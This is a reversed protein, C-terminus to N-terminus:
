MNRLRWIGDADRVFEVMFSMMKGNEQRLMAYEARDDRIEVKHIETMVKDIDTKGDKLAQFVPRYKAREGIAVGGLAAEVDGKRLADKVKKWASKVVVDIEQPTAAQERVFPPTDFRIGSAKAFREAAVRLSSRTYREGPEPGRVFMSRGVRRGLELEYDEAAATALIIATLYRGPDQHALHALIEDPELRSLFSMTQFLIGRSPPLSLLRKALIDHPPEPMRGDLETGGFVESM